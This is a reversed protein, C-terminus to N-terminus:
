DGDQIRILESLDLQLIEEMFAEAVGAKLPENNKYYDTIMKQYALIQAQKAIILSQVSIFRQQDSRRTLIELM